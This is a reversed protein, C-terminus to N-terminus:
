LSRDMTLQEMAKARLYPLVDHHLPRSPASISVEACGPILSLSLSLSLPPPLSLSLFLYPGPVSHGKSALSKSGGALGWRRKFNKSDALITVDGQACVWPNIPFFGIFDLPCSM